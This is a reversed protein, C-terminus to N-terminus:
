FITEGKARKLEDDQQHIREKALKLLNKYKGNAEQMKLLQLKVKSANTPPGGEEKEAMTIEIRTHSFAPVSITSQRYRRSTLEFHIWDGRDHDDIVEYYDTSSNCIAEHAGGFHHDFCDVEAEEGRACQAHPV